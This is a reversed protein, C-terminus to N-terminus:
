SRGDLNKEFPLSELNKYIAISGPRLVWALAGLFVLFFLVLGVCSLGALHYHSLVRQIM